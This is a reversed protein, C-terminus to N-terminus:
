NALLQMNGPILVVETIERRRGLVMGALRLIELGIPMDVANDIM